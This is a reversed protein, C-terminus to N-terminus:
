GGLPLKGKVTIETLIIKIVTVSEIESANFGHSCGTYKETILSLAGAKEGPATCISARGFGILSLYSHSTDCPGDGAAIEGPEDVEVCLSPFASLVDLKKGANASHVYLIIHGGDDPEPPRLVFNVPLVYPRSGDYMGLRCVENRELLQRSVAPDTIELEKRRM